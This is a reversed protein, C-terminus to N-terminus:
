KNKTKGTHSKQTCRLFHSQLLFTFSIHQLNIL